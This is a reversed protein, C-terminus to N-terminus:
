DLSIMSPVETEEEDENSGLLLDLLDGGSDDDEIKKDTIAKRSRSLRAAMLLHAELKRTAERYDRVSFYGLFEGGEDVVIVADPSTTSMIDLGKSLPTNGLVALINTRMIKDVKVKTANLGEAMKAFIDRATVVGLIDKGKKVLIAHEPNRSLEQCIDSVKTKSEVVIHEDTISMDSVTPEEM